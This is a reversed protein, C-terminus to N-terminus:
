GDNEEEMNIIAKATAHAMTQQISGVNQEKVIVDTGKYFAMHIGWEDRDMTFDKKLKEWVPVLADLSKTYLDKEMYGMDDMIKTTGDIEVEIPDGIYEAIIKNVENDTV